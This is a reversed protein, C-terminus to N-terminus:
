IPVIDCTLLCFLSLKWVSSLPSWGVCADREVSVIRNHEKGPSFFVSFSKHGTWLIIRRTQFHVPLRSTLQKISWFIIENQPLQTQAFRQLNTKPSQLMPLQMIIDIVDSCIAAEEMHRSLPSLVSVFTWPTAAYQHVRYEEERQNTQVYLRPSFTM